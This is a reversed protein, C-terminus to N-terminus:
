VLLRYIKIPMQGYDYFYNHWSSRSWNQSWLGTESDNSVIRTNDIYVGTHGNKLKGTGTPSIVIDGAEIVVPDPVREFLETHKAMFDNLEHTGYIIPIRSDYRNLLTSLSFACSVMDPVINDPTFDNGIESKVIDLWSKNQMLKILQKYLEVLKKLIQIKTM